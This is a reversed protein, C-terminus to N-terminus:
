EVAIVETVGDVRDRMIREIGAKLTQTSAPCTGCAGVLTVSVVGTEENVERLVMDGGDAQLAPRIVEITEEVQQRM